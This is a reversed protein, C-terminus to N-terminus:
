TAGQAATLTQPVEGLERGFNSITQALRGIGETIETESVLSYSLRLTGGGGPGVHFAAGPVFILKEEAFARKLLDEASMGAPLQLWVFLGGSPETWSVAEPMTASLAALMTDRRGRYFARLQDCHPGLVRRAVAHVVMQDLSGSNLDSAQKIATLKPILAPPAAIWGVRFGPALSKSFTGLYLVIPDSAAEAHDLALLTPLAEGALQLQDYAQDEVVPIRYRRALGLVARRQDLPLCTGHPNGHDPMLYFFKAGARFEGELADLDLRGNTVPVGAVQPLYLGFAQLAGSYTPSTCIIRDDTDIFLKGVFDLAQQSGSTIVIQDAFLRAPPCALLDSILERLPRFGESPGYQLAQASLREDAFIERLAESIAETPFLAPNPSGAAFSIVGPEGVHRAM